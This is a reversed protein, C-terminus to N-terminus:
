KDGIRLFSGTKQQIGRQRHSRLIIIEKDVGAIGVEDIFADGCDVAFFTPTLLSEM